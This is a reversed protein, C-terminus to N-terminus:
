NTSSRGGAGSLATLVNLWRAMVKEQSFADRAARGNDVLEERLKADNAVLAITRALAAVDGNKVLIGGGHALLDAPGSPCDFAVIPARAGIAELLVNPFGEFRSSLVLFSARAMWKEPDQVEGLFIVRESIGRQLAQKKLASGEPGSGLIVLRWPDPLRSESFADILLDFGKQRHL